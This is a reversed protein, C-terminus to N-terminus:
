TIKIDEATNQVSLKFAGPSTTGIGVKGRDLVLVNNYATSDNIQSFNYRVVGSTVTQKLDLQYSSSGSSYAWRQM